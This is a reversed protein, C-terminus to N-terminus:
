CLHILVEFQYLSRSPAGPLYAGGLDLIFSGDESLKHWIKRAFPSFWELYKDSSKNGYEKERTLAFPPSTVVLNVSYDPVADLLILADGCYSAGYKYEDFPKSLAPFVKM